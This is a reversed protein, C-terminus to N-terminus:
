CIAAATSVRISIKAPPRPGVNVVVREAQAATKAARVFVLGERLSVKPEVILIPSESREIALYGDDVM